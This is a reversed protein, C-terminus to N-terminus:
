TLEADVDTDMDIVGAIFIFMPWLLKSVYEIYVQLNTIATLIQMLEYDDINLKRKPKLSGM